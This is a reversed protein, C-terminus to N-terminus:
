STSENDSIPLLCLKVIPRKYEGDATKVTAVRVQGDAGPHVLLVRGLKWKLPPLREDKVIVLQGVKLNESTRCWKPRQQMRTIFENSWRKWFLQQRQQVLDWRQLRNLKTDLHDHEPVSVLSSGVLFHAPTLASLDNPDASAPILPRSNLIAEIQCVLTHMEEFTLLSEGVVRTLHHKISRVGAEWLGGFHPAGPPNFHWQIGRNASDVVVHNSKAINIFDQLVKNAGKFNTGCDSFIDSPLGRRSVFRRLAALFCDTSLSSVVEIHIARTSLCVFIALWCKLTAKSRVPLRISFYGAYDIGVKSFPRSPNVRHLPLDGMLQKMSTSRHRTCTICKKVSWRAAEKGRIVWYRQNLISLLSSPGAHLYRLHYDQMIISTIHHTRPLLIPHKQNYALTSNKLRGGVRLLGEPCLIPCLPLLKSNTPIEM